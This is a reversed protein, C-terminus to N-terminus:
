LDSMDDKFDSSMDTDECVLENWVHDFADSLSIKGGRTLVTCIRQEMSHKIELLMVSGYYSSHPCILTEVLEISIEIKIM